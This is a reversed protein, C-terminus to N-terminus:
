WSARCRAVSTSVNDAIPSVSVEVRSRWFTSSAIASLAAVSIPACRATTKSSSWPAPHRRARAM